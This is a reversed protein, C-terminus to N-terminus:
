VILRKYRAKAYCFCRTTRVTVTVTKEVKLFYVYDVSECLPTYLVHM